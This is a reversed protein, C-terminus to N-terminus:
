LDLLPCQRVGTLQEVNPTESCVSLITRPAAVDIDSPYMLDVAISDITVTYVCYLREGGVTSDVHRMGPPSLTTSGQTIILRMAIEM